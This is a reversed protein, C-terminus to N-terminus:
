SITTHLLSSLQVRYPYTPASSVNMLYLPSYPHSDNLIAKCPVINCTALSHPKSPGAFFRIDLSRNASFDLTM